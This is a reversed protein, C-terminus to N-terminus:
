VRERTRQVRRAAALLQQESGEHPTESLQPRPSGAVQSSVRAVDDFWRNLDKWPWLFTRTGVRAWTRINNFPFLRLQDVNLRALNELLPELHEAASTGRPPNIVNLTQRRLEEALTLLRVPGPGRMATQCALRNGNAIRSQPFWIEEAKSLKNLHQAGDLVRCQCTQCIGQGDCVFGIHAGNRRAVDLLREGPNAEYAVDNIIVVPM